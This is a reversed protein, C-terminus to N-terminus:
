AARKGAFRLRLFGFARARIQCVRSETLGMEHGLEKLTRKEFVMGVVIRQQRSPLGRLLFAIEDEEEFDLPREPVSSEPLDELASTSLQPKRVFRRRAEDLIAGAVYKWAFAKFDGKRRRYARAARLLGMCGIAFLEEHPEDKLRRALRWAVKHVLELHSTILRAESTGM